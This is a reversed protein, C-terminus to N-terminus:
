KTNNNKSGQRLLRSSNNVNVSIECYSSFKCQSMIILVFCIKWVYSRLSPSRDYDSSVQSRPSTPVIGAGRLGPHGPTIWVQGQRWVMGRPLLYGRAGRHGSSSLTILQEPIILMWSWPFPQPSNRSSLYSTAKRFLKVSLPPLLVILLRPQASPQSSASACLLHYTWKETSQSRSSIGHPSQTLCTFHSLATTM